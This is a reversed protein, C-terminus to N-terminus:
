LPARRARRGRGTWRSSVPHLRWAPWTWLMPLSPSCVVNRSDPRRNSQRRDALTVYFVRLSLWSCASYGRRQYRPDSHTCRVLHVHRGHACRTGSWEPSFSALQPLHVVQSWRDSLVNEFNFNGMTATNPTATDCVCVTCPTRHMYCQWKAMAFAVALPANSPCAAGKRKNRTEQPEAQFCQTRIRFGQTKTHTTSVPRHELHAPGSSTVGQSKPGPECQLL